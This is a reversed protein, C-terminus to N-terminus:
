KPLEKELGRARTWFYRLPHRYMSVFAVLGLAAAWWGIALGVWVILVPAALLLAIGPIYQHQMPLMAVVASAVVWLSCAWLLMM